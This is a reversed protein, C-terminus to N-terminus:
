LGETNIGPLIGFGLNNLKDLNFYVLAAHYYTETGRESEKENYIVLSATTNSAVQWSMHRAVKIDFYDLLSDPFKNLNRALWDGQEPLTAGYKSNIASILTKFHNERKVLNYHNEEGPLEFNWGFEYFMALFHENYFVYNLTTAEFGAVLPTHIALNKFGPYPDQTFVDVYKEHAEAAQIEQWTSDWTIGNRSFIFEDAQISLLPLMSFIILLILFFRKKM